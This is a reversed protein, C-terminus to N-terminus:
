EVLRWVKEIVQSLIAWQWSRIPCKGDADWDKSAVGLRTLFLDSPDWQRKISRLRPYNSGWFLQATDSESAFPIGGYSGMNGDELAELAPGVVQQLETEVAQYRSWDPDRSMGKAVTLSMAASEWSPHLPTDTKHSKPSMMGELSVMDGPGFDLRSLTNVIRRPGETSSLLAKSVLRSTLLISVGAMELGRTVDLYSSLRPFQEVEDHVSNGTNRLRQPLDTLLAETTQNVGYLEISLMSGSGPGVPLAFSLSAIGRNAWYPVTSLVEHVADWFGADAGSDSHVILRATTVPPDPHTRFTVSTVVGFSGGGGGRVAWFLDQNQYPNAVVLEGQFIDANSGETAQTGDHLIQSIVISV